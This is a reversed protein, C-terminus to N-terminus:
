QLFLDKGSVFGDLTFRGTSSDVTGYYTNNIGFWVYGNDADFAVQAIDGSSASGVSSTTGATSNVM